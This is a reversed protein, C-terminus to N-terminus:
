QSLWRGLEQRLTLQEEKKGSRSGTSFVDKSGMHVGPESSTSLMIPITIPWLMIQPHIVTQTNSSLRM